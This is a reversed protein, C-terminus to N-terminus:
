PWIKVNQVIELDSAPRCVVVESQEGNLNIEGDFGKQLCWTRLAAKMTAVVLPSAIPSPSPAPRPDDMRLWELPAGFVAEVQEKKPYLADFIRKNVELSKRKDPGDARGAAAATRAAHM